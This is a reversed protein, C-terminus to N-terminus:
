FVQEFSAYNDLMDQAGDYIQTAGSLKDDPWWGGCRFAISRMRARSAAEIDYPTDGIMVLSDPEMGSKEMAADIIGPDPKSHKADKKSAEGSVLDAVNAMQLLAKAEEAKASTAIFLGLGRDRMHQFLARVEPFPKVHPLYREMFIAGNREGIAHAEDSDPDFGTIIPVIKDGGMGVMGRVREFPVDFGAERFADVWARAHGDNSDVLTGDVDFLVGRVASM